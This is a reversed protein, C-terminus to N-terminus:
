TLDFVQLPANVQTAFFYQNFQAFQWNATSGVASYTGSGKSVDTWTFATNDLLYLKTSTAYFAVVSGDNKRAYGFGRCAGVAASTYAVLAKFPGYGDGQPVVNLINKSTQGEYDSVDPRYEGFPLIV